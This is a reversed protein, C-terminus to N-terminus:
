SFAGASGDFVPMTTADDNHGMFSSAPEIRETVVFAIDEAEGHNKLVDREWDRRITKSSPKRSIVPLPLNRAHPM